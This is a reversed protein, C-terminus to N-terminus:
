TSVKTIHKQNSCQVEHWWYHSSGMSYIWSIEFQKLSKLCPWMLIPTVPGKIKTYFTLAFDILGMNRVQKRVESAIKQPEEDITDLM